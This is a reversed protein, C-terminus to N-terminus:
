GLAHNTLHCGVYVFLILGTTLRLRRLGFRSLAHVVRAYTRSLDSSTSATTMRRVQSRHPQCVDFRGECSDVSSNWGGVPSALRGWRAAGLSSSLGTLSESPHM